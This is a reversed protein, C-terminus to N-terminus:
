FIESGTGSAKGSKWRSVKPMEWKSRSVTESNNEPAPKRIPLQDPPGSPLQISNREMGVMSRRVYSRSRATANESCNVSPTEAKVVTVPPAKRCTRISPASVSSSYM